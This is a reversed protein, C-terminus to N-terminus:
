PYYGRITRAEGEEVMVRIERWDSGRAVSEPPYFGLLYQARLETEIQDYIEDLGEIEDIFYSRGGTESSITELQSRTIRELLPIGLGISYIPVASHRAYELAQEFTFESTTDKGDSLIVLAKQGDIGQFNYLSYVISDYLATADEARLGALGRVLDEREDTWKQVVVPTQAFSVVFARDGPRLIDRFFQAAARQARVVKDEMSGSSDVALGVNLPIDRVYEFKAIEVESGSDYVTFSSRPLDQVPRGDRLVTTPLEVLHVDVEQIFQPTNIFVVDEVERPEEGKTVAVARLYGVDLDSPVLITQVFPREYMSGILDENLYLDIRELEEGEPIELDIEVRTQGEVKPAIRPHAIHVRFPDAGTNIVIEDGAVLRDDRDLGVVRLRRTTPVIGLDLELSYPPEHKTMIKEGDVYFDVHDIEDGTVMTEIVQYGTLIGEPLPVIRLRSGGFLHDQRIAEITEATELEEATLQERPEIKPVNLERELVAEAGSNADVIKVRSVYEDPRLHRDVVVPITEGVIEAPFNYRYRYNDFFAGDKLIEGTVDVNYFRAGDLDKGVLEATPVSMSLRVATRTGRTGPYSVEMEAPLKPASPNAVVTNRLTRGVHEPDIEPPQFLIELEFNQSLGWGVAALLLEGDRCEFTVNSISGVGGSGYFVEGVGRQEGEYSLLEELAETEMGWAPRWLRFESGLRPKYFLLPVDSGLGKIYPYVWIQIPVFYRRCNIDVMSAPRGQGLYVRSRDSTLHEFMEEAEVLRERYRDRFENRATKPDPDRILWFREIFYDRQADTDLLLFATMEEPTIIPDVENLFDHYRDALNMLRERREQRSLKREETKQPPQNEAVTANESPRDTKPNTAEANTNPGCVLLAAVVLASRPIM